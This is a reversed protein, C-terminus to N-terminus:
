SKQKDLSDYDYLKVKYRDMKMNVGDNSDITVVPQRAKGWSLTDNLDLIKFRPKRETYKVYLEQALGNQEEAILRRIVTECSQHMFHTEHTSIMYDLTSDIDRIENTMTSYLLEAIVSNTVKYEPLLQQAKKYFASLLNSHKGVLILTCNMISYKSRKSISEAKILNESINIIYTLESTSVESTNKSATFVLRYLSMLDSEDEIKYFFPINSNESNLNEIEREEGLKWFGLEGLVENGQTLIYLLQIITKIDYTFMRTYLFHYAFPKVLYDPLVLKQQDLQFVEKFETMFLALEQSQSGSTNPNTFYAVDCYMQYFRMPADNNPNTKMTALSDVMMNRISTNQEKAIIDKMFIELLPSFYRVDFRMWKSRRSNPSNTLPNEMDLGFLKYIESNKNLIQAHIYSHINQAYPVTVMLNRLSVLFFGKENEPVEEFLRSVLSSSLEVNSEYKAIVSFTDGISVGSASVVDNINVSYYSELYNGINIDVKWEPKLQFSEALQYLKYLTFPNFMKKVCQVQFYKFLQSLLEEKESSEKLTTGIVLSNKFLTAWLKANVRKSESYKTVYHKLLSATVDLQETIAYKDDKLKVLHTESMGWFKLIQKKWGPILACAVGLGSIHNIDIIKEIYINYLRLKQEMTISNADLNHKKMFSVLIELYVSGTKGKVIPLVKLQACIYEFSNKYVKFTSLIEKAFYEGTDYDTILDFLENPTLLTVARLLSNEEIAESNKMEPNLQGGSCVYKVLSPKQKIWSKVPSEGNFLFNCKILVQILKEKERQGLTDIILQVEQADICKYMETSRNITKLYHVFGSFDSGYYDFIPKIKIEEFEPLNFKEEGLYQMLYQFLSNKQDKIILAQKLVSFRFYNKLVQKEPTDTKLNQFCRIALKIVATDGEALLKNFLLYLLKLPIARDNSVFPSLDRMLEDNLRKCEWSDKLLDLEDPLSAGYFITLYNYLTKSSIHQFYETILIEHWSDLSFNSPVEIEARTLSALFGCLYSISYKASIRIDLKNNQLLLNIFCKFARFKNQNKPYREYLVELYEDVKKQDHLPLYFSQIVSKIISTSYSCAIRSMQKQTLPNRLISIHPEADPLSERNCFLLDYKNQVSLESSLLETFRNTVKDNDIRIKKYSLFTFLDVFSLDDITILMEEIIPELKCVIKNFKAPTDCEQLFSDLLLKLKPILDRKDHHKGFDFKFELMMSNMHIPPVFFEEKFPSVFLNSQKNSTLQERNTQRKRDTQRTVKDDETPRTLSLDFTAKAKHSTSYNLHAAYKAKRKSHTSVSRVRLRLLM